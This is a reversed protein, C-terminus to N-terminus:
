GTRPFNLESLINSVPGAHGDQSAFSELLNSLLNFDLDLPKDATIEDDLDADEDDGDDLQSGEPESIQEFRAFSKAMHTGSLEIDMEAMAAEMRADDEDDDSDSPNEDSSHDGGVDDDDDEYFYEGGDSFRPQRQSSEDGGDSGAGNLIEMFASMDFQIPENGEVGDIGSIGGLFNNFMTAISELEEAGGAGEDLGDAATVAEKKVMGMSAEVQRLKEELSDPHVYLWSDDDNEELLEVEVANSRDRPEDDCRLAADILERWSEGFQAEAGTAYLIELGCALKMGIEAALVEPDSPESSDAASTLVNHYSPNKQFPKPTFFQQQKLQAFMCRSFAVTRQQPKVPSFVEMKTCVSAAFKPERYYFAEVAAGLVEPRKTLVRAANAPLLCRVRQRNEKMFLPVQSLKSSLARQMADSAKTELPKQLVALMCRVANADDLPDGRSQKKKSQRRRHAEGDSSEEEPVISPSVLHLAGNSLLVRGSSNEPHVWEPLADACEILLFEGDSDHVRMIVDPFRTTIEMLLATVVWEDQIEDGVQTEGRLYYSLLGNAAVATRQASSSAHHAALHFQHRQWIFGRTFERAFALMEDCARMALAKQQADDAASGSADSSSSTFFLEYAIANEDAALPAEPFMAAAM